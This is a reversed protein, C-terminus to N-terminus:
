PRRRARRRLAERLARSEDEDMQQVFHAFITPRDGSDALLERMLRAVAAERGITPTYRHARGARERTLWGKRLLNEMVTQVTTYALPREAALDDVVDRATAPRGWRWLRDMVVSELEGLGHV